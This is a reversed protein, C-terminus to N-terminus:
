VVSFFHAVSNGLLILWAFPQLKLTVRLFYLSTTEVRVIQYIVSSVTGLTPHFVLDWLIAMLLM